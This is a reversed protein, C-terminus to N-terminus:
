MYLFKSNGVSRILGVEVLDIPLHGFNDDTLTKYLNDEDAGSLGIRFHNIIEDDLHRNHLYEIAPKAEIAKKLFFSHCAM